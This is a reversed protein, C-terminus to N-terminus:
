RAQELQDNSANALRPNHKLLTQFFQTAYREADVPLFDIEHVTYQAKGACALEGIERRAARYFGYSGFMEQYCHLGAPRFRAPHKM